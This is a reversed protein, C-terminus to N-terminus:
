KGNVFREFDESTDQYNGAGLEAIWRMYVEIEAATIGPIYPISQTDDVPTEPKAYGNKGAAKIATPYDVYCEDLDVNGNIGPIRGNESKQWMGYEGSYNCKAGWEAIWLAYRRQTDTDIHSQIVSRSAYIGCWYGAKELATCFARCMASVNAKGTNLSGKEEIDFFVPMEFKKGAITQLFTRAEAEAEAPTLAYSYWYAGCQIGQEKCGVYNREFQADKQSISKGYGARLIAFDIGGLEAVTQWNIAGNHVSVDIGNM